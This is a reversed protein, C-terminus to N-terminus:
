ALYKVVTVLNKGDQREYSAEDMLEEVLHIGLGGVKREQLPAMTDPPPRGFPDFPRGRDQVTVTLRDEGLAMQVDIAHVEDDDFAYSVVNALLDDLVLSVSRRVEDSLDHRTCLEAFADLVTSIESRGSAIRMRKTEVDRM